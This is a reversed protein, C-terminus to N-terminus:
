VHLQVTLELYRHKISMLPTSTLVTINLEENLERILAQQATEGLELKGGPFEWLSGQHLSPKRLSILIQGDTNKIVGVAVHLIKM